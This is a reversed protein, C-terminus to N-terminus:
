FVKKWIAELSDNLHSFVMIGLEKGLLDKSNRWRWESFAGNQFFIWFIILIHFSIRLCLWTFKLYFSAKTDIFIFNLTAVIGQLFLYLTFFHKSFDSNIFLLTKFVSFIFFWVQFNNKKLEENILVEIKIRLRSSTSSYLRTRSITM